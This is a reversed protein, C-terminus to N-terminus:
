DAVQDNQSRHRRSEVCRIDADDAERGRRDLRGALRRLETLSEKLSAALARAEQPPIVAPDLYQVGAAAGQVTYVTGRLFRRAPLPRRRPSPPVGAAPHHVAAESLARDFV